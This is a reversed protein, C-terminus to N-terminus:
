TPFKKNKNELRKQTSLLNRTYVSEPATYYGAAKLAKSFEELNGSKAPGLIDVFKNKGHQMHEIARLYDIIGAEFSDYARFRELRKEYQGNKYEGANLAVFKKHWSETEKSDATCNLNGVNYNWCSKGYGTEFAFQVVFVESMTDLISPESIGLKKSLCAKVTPLISSKTWPTNAKKVRINGKIDKLGGGVVKDESLLNLKDPPLVVDIAEQSLSFFDDIGAIPDFYAM